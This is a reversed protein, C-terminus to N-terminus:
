NREIRFQMTSRETEFETLFSHVSYNSIEAWGCRSYLSRSSSARGKGGAPDAEWNYLVQARWNDVCLRDTIVKTVLEQSCRRTSPRTSTSPLHKPVTRRVVQIRATLVAMMM